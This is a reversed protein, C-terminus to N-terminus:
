YWSSVGGHHSCTGSRHQSFSYTGDGCRASAGSPRGSNSYAPSHVENGDVNTYYNSNSLNNNTPAQYPSKVPETTKTPVSPTVHQTQVVSAQQQVVPAESNVAGAIGWLGLLGIVLSGIAWKSEYWKPKNENQM